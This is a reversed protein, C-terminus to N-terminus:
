QFRPDIELLINEIRESQANIRKNFAIVKEPNRTGPTLDEVREPLRENCLDLLNNHNHEIAQAMFANLEKRAKISLYATSM